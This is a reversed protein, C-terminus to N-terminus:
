PGPTPRSTRHLRWAAKLTEWAKSTQSQGAFVGAAYRRALVWISAAVFAALASAAVILTQAPKSRRDPPQAPDVQQLLPGDKAEDLKAAEYQRVMAELLVEQLKVERRARVYAVSAEPLKGVPLSGASEAGAEQRSELKALVARLGQLESTLRMVDPNQETSSTRLVRLRVEREAIAARAQAAGAIVAEAQKDLVIVGSREQVEQLDAEAKILNEKTESLQREFFVRRQQAESVALRSLVKTIETLHANAVQAAFTPDEDEVELSILGSKKDSTVHIYTPWVKRLSEFDKVSYRAKLGFQQDLGHLVSDSRLLAAYLEDPAKAGVGALGGLSGLAALAAASGSQQQTGPPLLTTRATYYSTLLFSVGVALLAAALTVGAILGKGEGLWVGWLLLDPGDSPDEDAADAPMQPHSSNENDM